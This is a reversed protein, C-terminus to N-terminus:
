ASVPSAHNFILIIILTLQLGFRHIGVKLKVLVVRIRQVSASALGVISGGKVVIAVIYVVIIAVHHVVRLFQAKGPIDVGLRAVDADLIVVRAIHKGGFPIAAEREAGGVFTEM